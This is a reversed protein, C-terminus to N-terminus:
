MNHTCWCHESTGLGKKSATNLLDFNATTCYAWFIILRCGSGLCWEEIGSTPPPIEATAGNFNL